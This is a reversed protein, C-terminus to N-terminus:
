KKERLKLQRVDEGIFRLYTYQTLLRSVVRETYREELEQSTLNSSIITPKGFNMRTNIINYVSSVNFPTNYEAGLDDLILLDADLVTQLTEDEVISRSFHEREIKRLIDQATCYLVHYGKLIVQKAIALSLHTKGLGTAGLMMISPSSMTFTDAYKQCYALIKGMTERPVVGLRPDPQSSFYYLEFTSFDCLQLPSVSNLEDVSLNRLIENLCGCRVGNVFGTDECKPCTFHVTLYDEPYGHWQLLKRMMDQAEVNRVRLEDILEKANEPHEIIIKTLKVNTGTLEKQLASIEPVKQAIEDTRRNWEAFARERRASLQDVARAYLKHDPAM